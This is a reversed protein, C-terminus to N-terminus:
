VRVESRWRAYEEKAKEKASAIRELQRDLKSTITKEYENNLETTLLYKMQEIMITVDALEEVLHKTADAEGKTDGLAAKRKLKQVAQILEACEECLVTMQVDLGYTNAIQKVKSLENVNM